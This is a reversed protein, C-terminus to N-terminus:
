AFAGPHTFAQGTPSTRSLWRELEVVNGVLLTRGEPDRVTCRKFDPASPDRRRAVELTLGRGFVARRLRKANRTPTM